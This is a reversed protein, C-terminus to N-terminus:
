FNRTDNFEFGIEVRLIYKEGVKNNLYKLYKMIGEPKYIITLTNSLPELYFVEEERTTYTLIGGSGEDLEESLDFFVDLSDSTDKKDNLLIFDRHSYRRLSIGKINLDLGSVEEIFDIFEKSKFFEFFATIHIDQDPRPELEEYSHMLPDYVKRFSGKMLRQPFKKLDKDTIFENLQVYGQTDFFEQIQDMMDERYGKNIKM